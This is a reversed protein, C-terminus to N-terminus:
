WTLTFYNKLSMGDWLMGGRETDSEQLESGRGEPVTIGDLSSRGVSRRGRNGTRDAM